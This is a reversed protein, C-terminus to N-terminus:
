HFCPPVDQAGLMGKVLPYSSGVTRLTPDAYARISYGTEGGLGTAAYRDVTLELTAKARSTGAWCSFGNKGTRAQRPTVAQGATKGAYRLVAVPVAGLNVAKPDSVFFELGSTRATPPYFTVRGDRVTHAKSTWVPGGIQKFSAATVQCGGCNTVRVTVATRSTAANAPSGGLSPVLFATLALLALALTGLIKKM